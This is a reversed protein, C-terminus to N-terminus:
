NHQGLIAPGHAASPRATPQLSACGDHASRRATSRPLRTAHVPVDFGHVRANDQALAALAPDADIGLARGRGALAVLDSGAGCCADVVPEGIPFLGAKYSASWHDSAQALSVDTWLWLDPRPFRSRSRRRFGIQQRLLESQWAALGRVAASSNQDSISQLLERGHEILWAIAASHNSFPTM